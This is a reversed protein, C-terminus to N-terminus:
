WYKLVFHLVIVLAAIPLALCFTIWLMLLAFAAGGTARFSKTRRPARRRSSRPSTNM